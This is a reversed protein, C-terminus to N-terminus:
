ELTLTLNMERASQKLWDRFLMEPPSASRSKLYICGVSQPKHEFDVPLIVISNDFKHLRSFTEPLMMIRDTQILIEQGILISSCEIVNQPFELNESSFISGVMPRIVTTPLPVIWPEQLIKKLTLNKKSLLPHNQRCYVKWNEYYIIEKEIESSIASGDLRGVIIDIEGNKLAPELQGYLGEILSIQIGSREAELRAITPSLPGAYASILCGIVLKGSEANAMGSLENGALRLQVIVKRAHHVFVEGFPTPNTGQSNRDFLKVEILNEIRTISRSVAPQSMNLHDAAKLINGHDAVTVLLQLDRFKLHYQLFHEFNPLEM